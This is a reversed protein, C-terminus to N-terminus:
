AYFRHTLRRYIDFVALIGSTIGTLCFTVVLVGITRTAFDTTPSLMAAAFYYLVVAGVVGAGLSSLAFVFGMRRVFHPMLGLGVAIPPM